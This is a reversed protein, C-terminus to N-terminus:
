RKFRTLFGFRLFKPSSRSSASPSGAEQKERVASTKEDRDHGNKTLSGLRGKLTWLSDAKRLLPIRATSKPKEYVEDSQTWDVRHENVTAPDVVLTEESAIEDIPPDMAAIPHINSVEDELINGFSSKRGSKRRGLVISSSPRLQRRNEKSGGRDNSMFRSYQFQSNEYSNERHSHVRRLANTQASSVGSDLDIRDPPTGDIRFKLAAQSLSHVSNCERMGNGTTTTAFQTAAVQPVHHYSSANVTSETSMPEARLPRRRIRDQISQSTSRVPKGESSKIGNGELLSSATPPKGRMMRAAFSREDDGPNTTASAGLATGLEGLGLDSGSEDEETSRAKLRERRKREQLAEQEAIVVYLRRRLDDPDLPQSKAHRNSRTHSHRYPDPKMAAPRALGSAPREGTSRGM